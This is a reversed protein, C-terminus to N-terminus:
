FLFNNYHLRQTKMPSYASTMKLKDVSQLIEEDDSNNYLIDIYAMIDDDVYRSPHLIDKGVLSLMTKQKSSYNTPQSVFCNRAFISNISDMDEGVTKVKM